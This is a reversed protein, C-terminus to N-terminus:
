EDMNIIKMKKSYNERSNFIGLIYVTNGEIRYILVYEMNSLKAEHYHLLRLYSDQSERYIHPNLELNNYIENISNLLHKAAQESKFVNLLYYIKEDLLDEMKDTTILKYAM